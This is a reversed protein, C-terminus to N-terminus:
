HSTRPETMICRHLAARAASLFIVIFSNSERVTRASEAQAVTAGCGSGAPLLSDGGFGPVCVILPSSSLCVPRISSGSAKRATDGINWQPSSSPEGFVTARLIIGSAPKSLCITPPQKLAKLM